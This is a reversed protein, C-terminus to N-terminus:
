RRVLARKEVQKGIFSFLLFLGVYLAGVIWISISSFYKSYFLNGSRTIEVIMIMSLLSTDKIVISSQGVLMPISQRFALPFIIRFVINTKSLGLSKAAEVEGQPVSNIAGRLIEAVFAGENLTIAIIACVMGPFVIGIYPLGFFFFFIVVLLPTNRFISVYAKAVANIVKNDFAVLCAVISGWALSTFIAIISAILTVKLAALLEPMWQILRLTM